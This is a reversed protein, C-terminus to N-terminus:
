RDEVLPDRSDASAGSSPPISVDEKVAEENENLITLVSAIDNFVRQTEQTRSIVAIRSVNRVEAQM